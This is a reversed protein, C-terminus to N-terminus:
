LPKPPAPLRYPGQEPPNLTTRLEEESAEPRAGPNRVKILEVDMLLAEDKHNELRRQGGFTDPVLEVDFSGGWGLFSSILVRRVGGQRMGLVANSVALPVAERDGLTFTFTSGVDDKGENGYGLSFLYIPTGGSSYKFYAGSSLKYVTYSIDLVSNASAAPKSEDGTSLDRYQVGSPLTVIPGGDRGDVADENEERIRRAEEMRRKREEYSGSPKRRPVVIKAEAGGPRALHLTASGGLVLGSLTERRTLWSSRSAEARCCGECRELTSVARRRMGDTVVLSTPGPGGDVSRSLRRTTMTAVM